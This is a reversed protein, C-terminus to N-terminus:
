DCRLTVIPDIRVARRSPAYSAAVTAILVVAVTGAYPAWDYPRIADMQHAFVPALMLALAVGVAAGTLALKASQRLVM